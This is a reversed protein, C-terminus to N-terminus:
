STYTSKTIVMPAAVARAITKREGAIVDYSVGVWGLDADVYALSIDANRAPSHEVRTIVGVKEGEISLPDGDRAAGADALEIMVSRRQISSKLQELVTGGLLNQKRFNIMWHLGAELVNAGATIDRHLLSRVELLMLPLAAPDGAIMGAAQGAAELRRRLEDAGANPVLFRYEYEGTFGARILKCGLRQNDEFSLFSLGLIDEGAAEVTVDQALPGVISLYGHSGRLDEIKVNHGALCGTLHALLTEAREAEGILLFEGDGKFISAVAVLSADPRIVLGVLGHFPHLAALDISVFENLKRWDPGSVCIRADAANDFLAVANRAATYTELM